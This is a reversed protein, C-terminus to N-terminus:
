EYTTPDDKADIDKSVYIENTKTDVGKYVEYYDPIVSWRSRPSRRLSTELEPKNQPEQL